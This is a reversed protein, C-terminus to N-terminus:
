ELWSLDSLLKIKDDIMEERGGLQTDAIAAILPSTIDKHGLGVPVLASLDSSLKRPSAEASSLANAQAQVQTQGM